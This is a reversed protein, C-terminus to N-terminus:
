SPGPSSHKTAHSYVSGRIANSIAVSMELDVNLLADVLLVESGQLLTGLGAGNTEGRVLLGRETGEDRGALAVLDDVVDLRAAGLTGTDDGTALLPGLGVAAEEDLGSDKGVDGGVHLDDLLLDEAGDNDNSGELVLGVSELEGVVGGKTEGGGDEGVVGALSGTHRGREVGAGDPDVLSGEEVGTNGEAAELLRTDAALQSSISEFSIGLYLCNM